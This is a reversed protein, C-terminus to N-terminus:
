FSEENKLKNKIGPTLIVEGEELLYKYPLIVEEGERVPVVIDKAFKLHELKIGEIIKQAAIVATDTSMQEKGLNRKEYTKVFHKKTREKPPNDGLVGGFIFHEFKKSDIPELTKEATPDLICSKEFELNNVSEERVEGLCEVKEKDKKVNTFILNEKGVHQSIHTYELMSWEYLEEDMHEIIYKTM